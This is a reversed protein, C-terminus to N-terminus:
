QNGDGDHRALHRCLLTWAFRSAPGLSTAVRDAVSSEVDDLANRLCVVAELNGSIDLARSFFMADGDRGGDILGLLDSFRGAIRADYFPERRRSVAMLRPEDPDPRLLVLFPLECADIVFRSHCHSGLRVFLDPMEHAMNRAIRDLFPQALSMIARLAPAPPRRVIHRHASFPLSFQM